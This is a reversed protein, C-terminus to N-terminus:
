PLCVSQTNLPIILFNDIEICIPYDKTLDVLEKIFDILKKGTFAEEQYEEKGKATKLISSEYIQKIFTNHTTFIPCQYFLREKLKTANGKEDDKLNYYNFNDISM